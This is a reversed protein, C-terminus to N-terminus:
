RQRLWTLIILENSCRWLSTIVTFFVSMRTKLMDIFACHCLCVSILCNIYSQLCHNLIIVQIISLNNNMDSEESRRLEEWDMLVDQKPVNSRDTYVLGKSVSQFICCNALRQWREAETAQSVKKIVWWGRCLWARM